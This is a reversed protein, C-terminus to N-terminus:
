RRLEYVHVDDGTKDRHFTLHKANPYLRYVWSAVTWLLRKNRYGEDIAIFPIYACEGGDVKTDEPWGERMADDFDKLLWSFAAMRIEDEDTVTLVQKMYAHYEVFRKWDDRSRQYGEGNKECFDILKEIM